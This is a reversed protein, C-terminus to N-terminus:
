SYRVSIKGQLLPSLHISWKQITASWVKLTLLCRQIVHRKLSMQSILRLQGCKDLAMKHPTGQSFWLSLSSASLGQSVIFSSKGGFCIKGPVTNFHFVADGASIVCFGRFDCFSIKKERWFNMDMSFVTTLIVEFPTVPGLSTPIIKETESVEVRLVLRKKVNTM